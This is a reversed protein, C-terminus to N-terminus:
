TLNRRNGVADQLSAFIQNEQGKYLNEIKFRESHCAPATSILILFQLFAPFHMFSARQRRHWRQHQDHLLISSSQWHLVDGKCSHTLSTGLFDNELIANVLKMYPRPQRRMYETQARRWLASDNAVAGVVLADAMREAQRM